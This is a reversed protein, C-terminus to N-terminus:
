YLQVFYYMKCDTCSYYNLLLTFLYLSGPFSPYPLLSPYSPPTPYTPTPILSISSVLPPTVPSHGCSYLNTDWKDNDEEKKLKLIKGKFVYCLANGTFYCHLTHPSTLLTSLSSPHYSLSLPACHCLLKCLCFLQLSFCPQDSKEESIHYQIHKKCEMSNQSRQGKEERQQVFLAFDHSLGTLTMTDLSWWISM